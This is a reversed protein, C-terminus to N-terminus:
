IATKPDSTPRVRLRQDVLQGKNPPRFVSSTYPSKCYRCAFVLRLCSVKCLLFITVSILHPIATLRESILTLSRNKGREICILISFSIGVICNLRCLIFSPNGASPNIQGKQRQAHSKFFVFSCM